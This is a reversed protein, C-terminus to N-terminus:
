DMSMDPMYRYVTYNTAVFNDTWDTLMEMAKEQGHHRTLFEGFSEEPPAMDAYNEHPIVLGVANRGGVDRMFSWHHPWEGERAANVLAAKSAEIQMARGMKHKYTTVGYLQFHDDEEPWNSNDFDITQLRHQYSEVYQDVNDNWHDGTKAEAAWANYADIDAYAFCCYRIAYYSLDDGIVPAYTRYARTDGKKKRFEIHKQFANRFQEDMGDKVEVMWLDALNADGHNDAVANGAFCAFGLAALAAFAQRKTM